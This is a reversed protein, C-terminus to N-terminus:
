GWFCGYADKDVLDIFESITKVTPRPKYLHWKLDARMWFIKWIANSKVFTTKAIPSKIIRKPDDYYPRIEYIIISQDEIKYAVDVQNRLVEPPRRILLFNELNEIVELTQLANLPM